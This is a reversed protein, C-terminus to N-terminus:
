FFYLFFHIRDNKDFDPDKEPDKAFIVEYNFFNGLHDNKFSRFKFDKIITRVKIFQM